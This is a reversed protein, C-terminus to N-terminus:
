LNWHKLPYIIGTPSLLFSIITKNHLSYKVCSYSTFSTNNGCVTIFFNFSVVTSSSSWALSLCLSPLSPVWVSSSFDGQGWTWQRELVSSSLRDWCYTVDPASFGDKGWIATMLISMLHMCISKWGSQVLKM